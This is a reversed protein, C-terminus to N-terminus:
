HLRRRIVVTTHLSSLSTCDSRQVLRDAATPGLRLISCSALRQQCQQLSSHFCAPGQRSNSEWLGQVSARDSASLLTHWLECPQRCSAKINECGCETVLKSQILQKGLAPFLKKLENVTVTARDSVGVANANRQQEAVGEQAPHAPSPSDLLEGLLEKVTCVGQNTNQESKHAHLCQHQSTASHILGPRDTLSHLLGTLILLTHAAKTCTDACLMM